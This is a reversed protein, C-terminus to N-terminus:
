HLHVDFGPVAPFVKSGRPKIPIRLTQADLSVRAEKSSMGAPLEPFEFPIGCEACKIKIEACFAHVPGDDGGKLRFVDTYAQFNKHECM